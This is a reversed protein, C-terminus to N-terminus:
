PQAYKEGDRIECQIGMSKMANEDERRRSFSGTAEFPFGFWSM